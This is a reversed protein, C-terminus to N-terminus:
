RKGYNELIWKWCIDDGEVVDTWSTPIYVQPILSLGDCQDRNPRNFIKHSVFGKTKTNPLEWALMDGYNCPRYSSKNGVVIGINNDTADTILLGASSYTKTNQIFIVDGKFVKASDENKVFYTDIRELASVEKKEKSLNSLFSSEYLQGMKFPLQNETFTQEYEAALVPYHQKWLNSFRIFSTEPQIEKVPKLWSLLVDCLKSNGGSNNRVDIVLTKIENTGIAQFMEKLFTDFRPYQALKKELDESLNDPNNMLYQFRLASQDTCANFQLYCISQEPFLKYLFPQKSNERILHIPNKPQQLVLNIQNVPVPHLSVITNDIFTLLLSSDSLCYPNNEWISYLQMFDNVKDTFYICNDSSITKRFSNLVESVPHGNIQNIQKGLSSEYEKNIGRLYIKDNDMDIFFLFPYVLNRNVDPSLSTHGDNLLTSIAQLYSRLEAVSGCQAAWSYGEKAISDINFPFPHGPSFAPHCEKLIDIFLLLDKQYINGNKYADSNEIRSDSYQKFNFNQGQVPLLFGGMMSFVISFRVFGRKM